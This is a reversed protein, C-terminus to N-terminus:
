VRRWGDWGLHRHPHDPEPDSESETEKKRREWGRGLQSHTDFTLANRPDADGTIIANAVRPGVIRHSCKELLETVEAILATLINYYVNTPRRAITKRLDNSFENSYRYVNQHDTRSTAAKAAFAAFRLMGTTKVTTASGTSSPRTDDRALGPPLRVPTTLIVASKAALRSSTKLSITGRADRIATRSSGVYGSVAPRHFDLRSALWLNFTFSSGTSTRAAGSSGAADYAIDVLRGSAPRM